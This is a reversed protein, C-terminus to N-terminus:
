EATEAALLSTEASKARLDLKKRTLALKDTRVKLNEGTEAKAAATAKAKARSNLTLYNQLLGSLKAGSPV